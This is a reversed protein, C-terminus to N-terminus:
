VHVVMGTCVSLHECIPVITTIIVIVTVIKTDMDVWYYLWLLLYSGYSVLIYSGQETEKFGLDVISVADGSVVWQQTAQTTTGKSPVQWLRLGLETTVM